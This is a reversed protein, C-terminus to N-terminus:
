VRGLGSMALGKWYGLKFDNPHEQPPRPCAHIFRGRPLPRPAHRRAEGHPLPQFPAFWALRERCKQPKTAKCAVKNM